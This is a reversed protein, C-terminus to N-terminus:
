ATGWPNDIVMLWTGDSQRRAVETGRGGMEIAAGDPATATASWESCILAIEGTNFQKTTVVSDFQPKRELLARLHATVAATGASAGGDPEAVVPDPEYLALLADLDHANAASQFMQHLEAPSTAPM